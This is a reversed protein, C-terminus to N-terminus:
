TVNTGLAAASSDTPDKTMLVYLGAVEEGYEMRLFAEGAHKLTLGADAAVQRVHEVHHVYRGSDTLRYPGEGAAEVSFAISGGPRLRRAAPGIVQSLDGFYILSDSAIILDFSEECRGLWQTIEAVDLQDYIGRQRAIEVMEPSLDVGILRGARSQIHEGSVGTGCGLDLVTLGGADGLTQRVMEALRSPIESSLEEYLNEDYFSSFRQYLQQICEDPVRQPDPEDRLATLLHAIEADDPEEALYKQYADRAADRHGVIHALEGLMRLKDTDDPALEAARQQCLLATQVKGHERLRDALEALEDASLACSAANNDTSAAANDLLLGAHIAEEIWQSVAADSQEPLFPATAAAIEDVRRRGDCYEVILAATPNLRHLRDAVPDYAIMGDAVSSLLISPNVAAYRM